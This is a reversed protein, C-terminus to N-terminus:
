DYGPMVAVCASAPLHDSYAERFADFNGDQVLETWVTPSPRGLEAATLTAFIYDITSRPRLPVGALRTPPYDDAYALM